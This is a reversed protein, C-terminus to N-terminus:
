VPPKSPMSCGPMAHGPMATMGTITCESSFIGVNNFSDPAEPRSLLPKQNDEVGRVFDQPHRYEWCKWCTQLGDWTKKLESAKYKFGCRDCICNNDGSKYYDAHGM